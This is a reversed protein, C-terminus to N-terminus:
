ADEAGDEIWRVEPDVRREIPPATWAAEIRDWVADRGERTQSSFPIPQDPPLAFERRLAAYRAARERPTLKDAKTAVVIHPIGSEVLAYRLMGDMALPDRRSDVLLVVLRLEPRAGLYDEIMQKWGSQIATPVRAYGYGPLDAFVGASGVRILNVLQTRGPTSSVRAAKRTGLLCNLASSKGVNSRGAFAVEPLGLSPLASPYSGVFEFAGAQNRLM